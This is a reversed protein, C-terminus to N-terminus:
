SSFAPGWLHKDIPLDFFLKCGMSEMVFKGQEIKRILEEFLAYKSHAEFFPM